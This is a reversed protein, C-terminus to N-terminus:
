IHRPLGLLVASFSAHTLSFTTSVFVIDVYWDVTYLSWFVKKRTECTLTGLAFRKQSQHLGLRCSLAVALAKYTLLKNYDGRQICSIQALVLCQLTTMSQETQIAALAAQWQDEISALETPQRSQRQNSFRSFAFHAAHSVDQSSAALAFVLNLQAIKANDTMAEPDSTYEEYLALFSPRHLVPFLPAWEQFFINVLQDSLLRPAHWKTPTSANDPKNSQPRATSLLQASVVETTSRGKEQVKQKFSDLQFCTLIM